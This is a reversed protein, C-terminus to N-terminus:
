CAVVPTIHTNLQLKAWGIMDLYKKHKVLHDPQNAYVESLRKIAWWFPEWSLALTTSGFVMATALNYYNDAIFGFAGMLDAHIRAYWFWAKKDGMALLIIALSYSIRTNYIDIYLLIKVKGFTIPAEQTVPTIGNMINNTPKMTTSANYYLGPYKGEKILM